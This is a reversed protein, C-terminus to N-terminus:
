LSPSLIETLRLRKKYHLITRTSLQFLHDHLIM